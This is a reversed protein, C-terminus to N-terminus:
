QTKSPTAMWFLLVIIGILPVFCILMWWGSKGIDHLRRVTVALSPIFSVIAFLLSAGAIITALGSPLLASLFGSAINVLLTFLLFYWYESRISKGKFNAYNKYVSSVAQSFTM